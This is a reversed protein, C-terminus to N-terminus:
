ITRQSSENFVSNLEMSQVKVVNFNVKLGLLLGRIRKNEFYM